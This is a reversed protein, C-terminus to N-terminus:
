SVWLGLVAVPVGAALVWPLHAPTLEHRFLYTPVVAAGLLLTAFGLQTGVLASTLVWLVLLGMVSVMIRTEKTWGATMSETRVETQARDRPEPRM